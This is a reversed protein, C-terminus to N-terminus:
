CSPLHMMVPKTIAKTYLSLGTIPVGVIMRSFWVSVLPFGLHRPM